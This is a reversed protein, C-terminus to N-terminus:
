CFLANALSISSLLFQHSNTKSLTQIKYQVDRNQRSLILDEQQPQNSNKSLIYYILINKSPLVLGFLVSMKLGM